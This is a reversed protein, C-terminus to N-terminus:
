SRYIDVRCRLFVSHVYEDGEGSVNKGPEPLRVDMVAYTGEERENLIYLGPNIVVVGKVVRAFPKLELPIVMVDPLTSGLEALGLYPVELQAGGAEVAALEEGLFGGTVADAEGNRRRVAGPFVPYYRRQELVHSAIREFRNGEGKHVEKLDKFVDLNSCGMLVENILFLSPNPFVRVHKPLGMHKRGFAAQPYSCHTASADRVSPILVVSIRPDIQALIPAVTRRFLDDWNRPAGGSTGSAGGAGGAGGDVDGAAVAGNVVDVFPGFMVVAHPKVETNIRAVLLALRAYNLTYRNSYPGCVYMVRIGGARQTLRGFEELRSRLSVASGLEPLPVVEEVVFARGTPNTGRLCVIQGCFFLYSRLQTLDLAVRQGIGGFRLTELFLATANLVHSADYVPSDPVIRACCVVAAQNALCPNGLEVGGSAVLQAVADIQEDLVDASELLKMAMTRFKFKDADFNAELTPKADGPGFGSTHPTAPNLSEVLTHPAAAADGAAAGAAFTAAGTAAGAADGAAAVPAGEAQGGHARPGPTGFSSNATAYPSSDFRAAPTRYPTEEPKRRKLSPTAPADGGAGVPAPKRRRDPAQPQRAAIQGQIYQQLRDLNEVTLALDLEVKTVVFTEWQLHVDESLLAFIEMLAELKAVVDPQLAVQPGFLAVLQKTSM